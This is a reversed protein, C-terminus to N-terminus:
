RGAVADSGVVVKVRFRQNGSALPSAALINVMNHTGPTGTFAVEAEGADNAAVTISPLQNEFAGLDFATFTVPAKAATKVKLRVAEGQRARQYTSSIAQLVPVDSAPQASQWVRGPEAKGLYSAPDARYSGEDFPMLPATHVVREEHDGNKLAEYAAAVQINTDPNLKPSSGYRRASEARAADQAARDAAQNKRLGKSPDYIDSRPRRVGGIEVIQDRLDNSRGDGFNLPRRERLASMYLGFVLVIVIALSSFAIPSARNKMSAKGSPKYSPLDSM